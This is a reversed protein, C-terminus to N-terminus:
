STTDDAATEIGNLGCSCVENDSVCVGANNCTADTEYEILLTSRALEVKISDVTALGAKQCYHPLYTSAVGPLAVRPISLYYCPVVLDELVAYLVPLTCCCRCSRTWM